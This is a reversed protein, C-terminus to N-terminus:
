NLNWLFLFHNFRCSISLYRIHSCQAKENEQEFSISLWISACIPSFNRPQERHETMQFNSYSLFVYLLNCQLCIMHSSGTYLTTRWSPRIASDNLLECLFSVMQSGRTCLSMQELFLQCFYKIVWVPSFGKLQELHELDNEWSHANFHCKLTRIQVLEVVAPKAWLKKSM